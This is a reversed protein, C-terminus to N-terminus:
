LVFVLLVIMAAIIYAIYLQINGHQIWRLKYVLNYLPRVLVREYNMLAVDESQMHWTARRPFIRTIGSYLRTVPTLWSFFGVMEDAYSAGTYQIRVTPKTFGCGWTGAQRIRKNLYLFQRLLAVLLVICVFLLTTQSLQTATALFAQSDYGAIFTIDRIGAFATRIFPAPVLGIFLCAGALLIMVLKMSFGVEQAQEVKDTRAAGLFALGAVKTFVAAALGGILALSIIAFIALIFSLRHTDVGQFAGYYILFESVFGAFPPLGSIATSGVLFTKGTIPMKKLLGGLNEISNTGTQQEVAAAGMFLLSKFVSHNFVHLLAGAFGFFAMAQNNEGAGLMGIGLGILIIGINEMSSYALLKKINQRVLAYVVGTLGTLIGCILVINAFIPSPQDLLLYIRLIGYIGMKSMVGSMLAPLHGPASSYSGSMWIHLPFLGAKSGFAILALIFVLLKQNDPMTSVAAFDFSGTHQYIIAFAAFLFMAGGQVFILYLYGAKRKEKDQYDFIVLFFSAISMIEWALAFTIMNAATVVMVMSVVLLTTLFYNIAIRLNKKGETLYDLSYVLVLPPILFVPILFFLSVSDVTFSLEFIHLWAWTATAVATNGFLRTLAYCLGAACGLATTGIVVRQMLIFRRSLFLAATGGALIIFISVFITDM